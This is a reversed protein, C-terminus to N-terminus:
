AEPEQKNWEEEIADILLRRVHRGARYAVDPTVGALHTVARTVAERLRKIEAKDKPDGCQGRLELIERFLPALERAIDKIIPGIEDDTGTHHLEAIDAIREAMQRADPPPEVGDGM